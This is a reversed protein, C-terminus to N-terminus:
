VNGENNVDELPFNNVMQNIERDFNENLELSSSHRSKFCFIIPTRYHTTCYIYFNVSSNLVTLFHAVYTISEVWVPWEIKNDDSRIREVLEYINPIWKVSHCIIFVFVIFLSVKSLMIESPRLRTKNVISRDCELERPSILSQNVSRCLSSRPIKTKAIMLLKLRRYMLTNLVLLLAFPGIGMFVFNLGITYISYYYKNVRMNTLEIEYNYMRSTGNLSTNSVLSTPPTPKTTITSATTVDYKVPMDSHDMASVHEYINAITHYEYFTENEKTENIDASDFSKTRLEFFRSINYLVSFIIIAVIYNKAPWKKSATYFPHCVTLYREISIALTCYVSGTLAIQVMPIAAPVVYFHYGEKKYDEFLGPVAFIIICLLIYFTDYIALAIMLRHFNLQKRHSKAFIIITSLNGFIGFLGTIIVLVVEFTFEM